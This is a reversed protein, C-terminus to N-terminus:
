KGQPRVRITFTGGREPVNITGPECSWEERDAWGLAVRADISYEGANPRGGCEPGGSGSRSSACVCAPRNARLNPGAVSSHIWRAAIRSAANSSTQRPMVPM